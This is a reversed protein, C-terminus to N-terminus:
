WSPSVRDKSHFNKSRSNVIPKSVPCLHTSASIMAKRKKIIVSETAVLLRLLQKLDLVEEQGSSSLVGALHDDLPVGLAVVLVGLELEPSVLVQVGQNHAVLLLSFLNLLRQRNTHIPTAQVQKPSHKTM